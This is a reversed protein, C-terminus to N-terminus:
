EDKNEYTTQLLDDNAKRVLSQHLKEQELDAQQGAIEKMDEKFKELQEESSHFKLKETERKLEELKKKEEYLKKNLEYQTQATKMAELNTMCENQTNILQQYSEGTAQAIASKEQEEFLKKNL